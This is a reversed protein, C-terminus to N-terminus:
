NWISLSTLCNKSDTWLYLTYVGRGFLAFATSLDFSINFNQGAESWANAMILIGEEPPLYHSGSPPPSVTMAVYTGVDYGGQYPANNLQQTTLSTPNDFYIAVQSISEGATLITGQMIVQNSLTLTSWSVYDDEFDEVFYVDKSDFAVGISVKNHLPNLINDRHGWNSSADDYMMSWEMDKLASQADVGFINGTLGEWACNEAVAGKGGALTYRIYPKYGNTDWHSFFHNSLMDDAHRQGSDVNSLTVNQLGRSQRDSNILSLAYNALEEYSNTLPSISPNATNPLYPTTSPTSSISPTPSVSPSQASQFISPYSSWIVVGAIIVITSFAIIKILSFQKSRTPPEIPPPKEMIIPKEPSGTNNYRTLYSPPAKPLRSCNHNEPLRHEVCYNKGCYACRFPLMVETGCHECRPM